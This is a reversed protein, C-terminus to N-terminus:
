GLESALKKVKLLIHQVQTISGPLPQGLVWPSQWPGLSYSSGRGGGESYFGVGFQGMTSIDAGAQLAEMFVKTGSKAIIGLNNILDAKTMGISTDVLTLTHEINKYLHIEL